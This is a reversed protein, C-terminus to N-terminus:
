KTATLDVEVEADFMLAPDGRGTLTRIMTGITRPAKGSFLEKSGHTIKIPKDLDVM